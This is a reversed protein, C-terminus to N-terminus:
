HGVSGMFNENQEKYYNMDERVFGQIIDDDQDSNDEVVVDLLNCSNLENKGDLELDSLSEESENGLLCEKV